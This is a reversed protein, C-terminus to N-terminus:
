FKCIDPTVPCVKPDPIKNDSLDLIFLKSLPALSAPNTIQNDQLDLDELTKVKSLESVNVLKNFGLDLIKLKSTKAISILDQDVLNCSSANFEELNVLAELTELGILSESGYIALDKLQVLSEIPSLDLPKYTNVRDLSGLARARKDAEDCDNTRVKQLVGAVMNKQGVTLNPDKCWSAFSRVGSNDTSNQEGRTEHRLNSQAEDNDRDKDMANFQTGCSVAAIIIPMLFLHKM